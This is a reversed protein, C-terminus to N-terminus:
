KFGSFISSKLKQIVQMRELLNDIKGDFIEETNVNDLIKFIKRM